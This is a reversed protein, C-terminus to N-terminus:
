KDVYGSDIASKPRDLLRFRLSKFRSGTGDDTRVGELGSVGIRGNVDFSNLEWALPPDFMSLLQMPERLSSPLPGLDPNDLPRSGLAM